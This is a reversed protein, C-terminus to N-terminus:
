LMDLTESLHKLFAFHSEGGKNSFFITRNKESKDNRVLGAPRGIYM